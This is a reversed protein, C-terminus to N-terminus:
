VGGAKKAPKQTRLMQAMGAIGFMIVIALLAFLIILTVDM